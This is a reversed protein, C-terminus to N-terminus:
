LTRFENYRDLTFGNNPAALSFQVRVRKRSRSKSDRADVMEAMAADFLQKLTFVSKM